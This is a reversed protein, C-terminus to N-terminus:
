LRFLSDGAAMRTTTEADKAAKKAAREALTVERKAKREKEEAVRKEQGEAKAKAHEAKNLKEQAQRQRTQAYTKTTPCMRGVFALAMDQCDMAGVADKDEARFKAKRAEEAKPATPSSLWWPGQCAGRSRLLSWTTRRQQWSSAPRRASRRPGRWSSKRPRWARTPQQPTRPPLRPTSPYLAPCSLALMLISKNNKHANEELVKYYKAVNSETLPEGVERCLRELAPKVCGFHCRGLPQTYWHGQRDFPFMTLDVAM